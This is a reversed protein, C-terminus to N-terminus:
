EANDYFHCGRGGAQKVQYLAQDAHEFLAKWDEAAGGYAIGISVSALPLGDETHSLERNIRSVKRLLLDKEQGDSNLMLVVFEDGGIRCVCDIRRFNQRLTFGIKKLVQDGVAHGYNDNIHKFKDADVLLLTTSELNLRSLLQDYGARNYLGTLGDREAQDLLIRESDSNMRVAADLGVICLAFVGGSWILQLPRTVSEPVLLLGPRRFFPALAVFFVGLNVVSLPLAPLCPSGLQRSVYEAFFILMTLGVLPLQFGASWGLAVSSAILCGLEAIYLALMYALMKEQSLLRLSFACGLACLVNVAVLPLCPSSLFLLIFVTHEALFGLAAGRFFRQAQKKDIADM